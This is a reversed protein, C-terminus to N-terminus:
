RRRANGHRFGGIGKGRSISIRGSLYSFGQVCRGHRATDSKSVRKSLICLEPPRQKFALDFKRYTNM